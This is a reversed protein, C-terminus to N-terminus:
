LKNVTISNFNEVVPLGAKKAEDRSKELWVGFSGPEKSEPNKYKLRPDGAAEAAPYLVNKAAWYDLAFPDASAALMNKQVATNYPSAPGRQPTIYTIDLINLTPFRTAAMLTGMGGLAVSKHPSMDTLANSAVGMYAKVAGTVHYQSHSKLVPLNILKLKNNNYSGTENNWIGFKFSIKTGYATTWKPYSIIIATPKIGPEVVYGDNNDGSSFEAVRKKTFSDWLIGSVKHGRAAFEDIVMQATQSRNKSNPEPWDLRGGKGESGFMAQGNDAVIIEGTFGQPHRLVYEILSKLVDTNTGGRQDWQSNIKILVVDNAEILGDEKSTKYFNINKMGSLLRELGNDTGDTREVFNVISNQCNIFSANFFVARALLFMFVYRKMVCLIADFVARKCGAM